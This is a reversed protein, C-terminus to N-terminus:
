WCSSVPAVGTVGKVGSDTYTLAGCIDDVQAGVPNARIVFSTSSLNSFALTYVGNESHNPYVGSPGLSATAYTSRETMYREMQVAAALLAAKGEARRTKQLYSAYSPYAISALVTIVICVVMMELLTFGRAVM